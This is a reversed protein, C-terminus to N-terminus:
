ILYIRMVRSYPFLESKLKTLGTTSLFQPKTLSHHVIQGFSRLQRASSVVILTSRTYGRLHGTRGEAKRKDAWTQGKELTEVILSLISLSKGMGMEDALVGGGKEEPRNRSQLKTIKHQYRTM